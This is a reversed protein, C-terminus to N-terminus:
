PTQIEAGGPPPQQLAETFFPILQSPIYDTLKRVGGASMRRQGNKISINYTGNRHQVLSIIKPDAGFQSFQANFWPAGLQMVLNARQEGLENRLAIEFDQKMRAGEEPLPKIRLTVKPGEMGSIHAEHEEIREANAVELARYEAVLRSLTVNLSTQQRQDADLVSAVERRIEGKDTFVQVPLRPFIEKRYWVYPSDANWQPLTEPPSLWPVEPETKPTEQEARALASVADHHRLKEARTERGITELTQAALAIRQDLDLRKVEAENLARQAERLNKQQPVWLALASLLILLVLRTKTFRM